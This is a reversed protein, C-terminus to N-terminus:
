DWFNWETTQKSFEVDINQVIVMSAHLSYNKTLLEKLKNIQRYFEKSYWIKAQRGHDEKDKAYAISVGKGVGMDVFKGYYLFSFEVSPLNSSGPLIKYAISSELDFSYGIKLKELKDIWNEYLYYAWDDVVKNIDVVESM